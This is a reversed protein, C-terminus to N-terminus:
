GGADLWDIKGQPMSTSRPATLDDASPTSVRDELLERLEREMETRFRRASFREAQMRIAQPDFFAEAQEFRYIAAALAEASQADFWVGTARSAEAPSGRWPRVTETAGGRAFAIVPRGAAQAEVAAIGFDEEQPYLLARCRGYLGALEADSVRGTFEVNAPARRALDRRMPGDGVVVLRRDLKRLADLALEERKYPVFGGVLLYFDEPPRGTPRIREVDVPPYVVRARRAYHQEVRRAVTQSIAIFRTVRERTSTRVDFNRLLRVLPTAAWRRLGRGLYAESQDWIYRMPTYCYCLHPIGPPRRVAKAVAHSSSVVVDYGDLWFRQIAWPFLPLLKRYHRQVGPLRNLPSTRIRLREIRETTSGPAFVLTYLDAAPFLAALQDLAREGGRLGTLWDHVLAVRV